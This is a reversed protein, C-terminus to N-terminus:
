RTFKSLHGTYSLFRLNSLYKICHTVTWCRFTLLFGVLPKVVMSSLNTLSNKPHCSTEECGRGLLRKGVLMKNWVSNQAFFVNKFSIRNLFIGFYIALLGIPHPFTRIILSICESPLDVM